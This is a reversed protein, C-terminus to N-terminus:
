ARLSLVEELAAVLLETEQAGRVSVRWHEPGLGPVGDLPLVRIGHGQLADPLGLRGPSRCLLFPAQSASAVEVGLGTLAAALREREGALEAATRQATAVPGRALCTELVVLALSSV